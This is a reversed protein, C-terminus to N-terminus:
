RTGRGCRGCTAAPHRGDPGRGPREIRSASHAGPRRVVGDDGVASGLQQREVGALLVPEAEVHVRADAAVGALHGAGLLVAQRGARHPPPDALDLAALVRVVRRKWRDIDHLWQRSGAHRLAARGVGVLLEVVADDGVVGVVADAALVAGPVARVRHGANWGSRRMTVLHSM